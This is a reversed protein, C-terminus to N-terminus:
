FPVGDGESGDIRGNQEDTPAEAKVMSFTYLTDNMQSGTRRVDLVVRRSGEPVSEALRGLTTTSIRWLADTWDDDVGPDVNCALKGIDLVSCALDFSQKGGGLETACVPCGGITCRARAKLRCWDRRRPNGSEGADFMFRMSEGAALKVRNASTAPNDRATTHLGM